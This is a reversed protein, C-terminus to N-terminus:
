GPSIYWGALASKGTTQEWEDMAGAILDAPLRGVINMRGDPRCSRLSNGEVWYLAGDVVCNIMPSSTGPWPLRWLRRLDLDAAWVQRNDTLLLTHGHREAREVGGSMWRYLIGGRSNIVLPRGEPTNVLFCDGPLSLLVSWGPRSWRKCGRLDYCL